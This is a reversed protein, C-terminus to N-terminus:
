AIKVNPIPVSPYTDVLAKRELKTGYIWENSAADEVTHFGRMMVNWVDLLNATFSLRKLDM